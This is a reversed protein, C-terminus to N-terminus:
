RMLLVLSPRVASEVIVRTLFSPARLTVAAGRATILLRLSHQGNRMCGESYRRPVQAKQTKANASRSVVTARTKM